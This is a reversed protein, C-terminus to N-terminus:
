LLASSSRHHTSRASTVRGVHCQGFNAIRQEFGIRAVVRHVLEDKRLQVRTRPARLQRTVLSAAPRDRGDERMQVVAPQHPQLIGRRVQLTRRREIGVAAGHLLSGGRVPSAGRLAQAHQRVSKRGSRIAADGPERAPTPRLGPGGPPVHKRVHERVLGMMPPLNQHQRMLEAVPQEVLSGSNPM